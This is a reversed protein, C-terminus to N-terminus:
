EPLEETSDAETSDSPLDKLNIIKKKKVELDFKIKAIQARSTEVEAKLTAMQKSLESRKAKATLIIKEKAEDLKMLESKASLEIATIDTHLQLIRAEKLKMLEYPTAEESVIPLPPAVEDAELKVLSRKMQRDIMENLDGINVNKTETLVFKQDGVELLCYVKIKFKQNAPIETRNVSTRNKSGLDQIYIIQQSEVTELSIQAHKGSMRGDDACIIDGTTRGITM